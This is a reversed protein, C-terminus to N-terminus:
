VTNEGWRKDQATIEGLPRGIAIYGDATQVCTSFSIEVTKSAVLKLTGGGECAEISCSRVPISFFGLTKTLSFGVLKVLM